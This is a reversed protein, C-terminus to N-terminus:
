NKQYSLYGQEKFYAELQLLAEGTMSVRNQEERSLEAWPKDTGEYIFSDSWGHWRDGKEIPHRAVTGPAKMTIIKLDKGDYFGVCSIATASRDDYQDLLHCMGEVGLAEIFWKALPGPLSGLANYCIGSDQVMVPQKVIGYAEKVKYNVVEEFSLSQIEILDINRHEIPITIFRSALEVKKSNGTVYIIKEM